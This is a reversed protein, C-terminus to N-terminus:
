AQRARVAASRGADGLGSLLNGACLVLRDHRLENELDLIISISISISISIRLHPNSSARAAAM